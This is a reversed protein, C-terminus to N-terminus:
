CAPSACARSPRSSRGSRTAASWSRSSTAPTRSSRAGPTVVVPIFGKGTRPLIVERYHRSTAGHHIWPLRKYQLYARAKASYYSPWSGYFHYEGGM